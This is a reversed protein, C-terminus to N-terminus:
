TVQAIPSEVEVIITDKGDIMKIIDGPKVKITNSQIIPGKGSLIEACGMCYYRAYFSVSIEPSLKRGCQQCHPWGGEAEKSGMCM